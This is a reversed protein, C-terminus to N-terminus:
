QSGFPSALINCVGASLDMRSNMCDCTKQRWLTPISFKLKQNDAEVSALGSDISEKMKKVVTSWSM